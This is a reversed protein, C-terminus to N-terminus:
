IIFSGIIKRKAINRKNSKGNRFFQLSIFLNDLLIFCYKNNNYIIIYLNIITYKYFKHKSIFLKFV